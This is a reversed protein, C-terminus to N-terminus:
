NDVSKLVAVSQGPLETADDGVKPEDWALVVEGRVPVAVTETGLNCAVVFSGRRMTIWRKEEDYDVDLHELWPDAFDTETRRLAILKRYTCLLQAHEGVGPEDWDLKSRQFTRPDQPDPIEDADWGHEAFEKKRGEATARALEPEPHSSFFQFPRSSGWEEGMFLM